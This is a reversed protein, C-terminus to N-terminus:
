RGFDYPGYLKQNMIKPRSLASQRPIPAFHQDLIKKSGPINQLAAHAVKQVSPTMQVFEHTEAEYTHQVVGHTQM